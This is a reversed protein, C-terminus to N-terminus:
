SSGKGIERGDRTVFNRVRGAALVLLYDALKQMARDHSIVVVTQGREKMGALAKLLLKKGDLDLNAGPEDLVILKPQGYLARALAVRQKVGAALRKGDPGIQKDYGGESKIADHVCAQRAALLVAEEDVPQDFRAINEAISGELLQFDQPMYGLNEGWAKEPWASVDAGDLLVEGKMAPWVGALSRALLSKGAGNPGAILLMRGAPVFFNVNQLWPERQGPPAVYLERVDLRGSSHTEPSTVPRTGMQAFRSALFALLRKKALRYQQYGKWLMISQEVPQLARGLLISAVIMGGANLEGQLVLWAGMALMASQLFLRLAKTISTIGAIRERARAEWWLGEDHTARWKELMRQRMGMAKIAEMNRLIASLTDQAALMSKQMKAQAGSSSLHNIVAFAFLVLASLVGLYFLDPHLFYIVALYIIMMPVDFLAALAPGSLFDSMLKFDRMPQMAVDAGGALARWTIADYLDERLKLTFKMAARSLIKGRVWDLLGLIFFSIAVSIVLFYLTEFSHSPIVRSYIQLMFVSGTLMLSNVLVSLLGIVFLEIKFSMMPHKVIKINNESSNVYLM